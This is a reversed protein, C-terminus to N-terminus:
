KLVSSRARVEEGCKYNFYAVVQVADHIAADGFGAERLRTVDGRDMEGPTLTLKEAFELLRRTTDEIPATRFDRVM